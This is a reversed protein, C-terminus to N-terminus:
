PDVRNKSAESSFGEPYRKKLKNINTEAVFDLGFGLNYAAIAVYWLVDGLEKVRKDYDTEHGHFKEKKVLEAYEGAEGCLGLATMTDIDEYDSITRRALEQYENLNM